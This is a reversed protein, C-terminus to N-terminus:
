QITKEKLADLVESLLASLKNHVEIVEQFSKIETNNELLKVFPKGADISFLDLSPKLKHVERGLKELDGNAIFTQMNEIAEPLQEVFTSVITNVFTENGQALEEIKNLSYKEM